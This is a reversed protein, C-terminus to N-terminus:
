QERGPFKNTGILALLTNQSNRLDQIHQDKAGLLDTESSTSSPRFGSNWLEDMLSQVEEYHLSIAPQSALYRNEETVPVMIVPQGRHTFQRNEDQDVIHIFCRASTPEREFFLKIM